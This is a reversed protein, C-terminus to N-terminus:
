GDLKRIFDDFVEAPLAATETVAPFGSQAVQARFATLARARETAIQLHLTALDGFKRAHRPVKETEGCIDSMFLFAVEAAPGSGLSITVLGTRRGIEEMLRAPILEAEVAFAGAEELRRFKHYLDVAESVSKGVARVEGVWTSKRPVFGLHGVVPIDEAALLSVIELRRGTLVADAGDVLASFATRLIEDDTIANAFGLAATIFAGRAGARVHAVNAARCVLMEIGADEAARAEAETEATVQAFTGSLGKAAKLSAVTAHRDCALGGWSFIRTM